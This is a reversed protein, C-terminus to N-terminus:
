VRYSVFMHVFVVSQKNVKEGTSRCFENRKAGAKKHARGTREYLRPKLNWYGTETKQGGPKVEQM